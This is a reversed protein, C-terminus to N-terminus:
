GCGDILSFIATACIGIAVDAVAVVSSGPEAWCARRPASTKAPFDAYVNKKSADGANQNPMRRLEFLFV